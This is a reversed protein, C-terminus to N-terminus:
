MQEGFRQDFTLHWTAADEDYFQQQSLDRAIARPPITDPRLASPLSFKSAKSATLELVFSLLELVDAHSSKISDLCFLSAQLSGM